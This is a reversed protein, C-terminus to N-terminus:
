NFQESECAYRPPGLGKWGFCRKVYGLFDWKWRLFALFEPFIVNEFVRRIGVLVKTRDRGFFFFFVWSKVGINVSLIPVKCQNKKKQCCELIRSFLLFFLYVESVRFSIQLWAGKNRWNRNKRYIACNFYNIQSFGLLKLKIITIGVSKCIERLFQWM